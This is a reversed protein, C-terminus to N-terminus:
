SITFFYPTPKTGRERKNWRGKDTYIIPNIRPKREGKDITKLM